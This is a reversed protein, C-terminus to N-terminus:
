IYFRHKRSRESRQLDSTGNIDDSAQKHFANNRNATHLKAAVSKWATWQPISTVIAPVCQKQKEGRCVPIKDTNQKLDEQPGDPYNPPHQGRLSNLLKELMVVSGWFSSSVELWDIFAVAGNCHWKLTSAAVGQIADLHGAERTRNFSTRQGCESAGVRTTKGEIDSPGGSWESPERVEATIKNL